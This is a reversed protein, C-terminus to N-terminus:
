STGRERSRLWHVIQDAVVANAVFFQTPSGGGAVQSFVGLSYNPLATGTWTPSNSAGAALKTAIAANAVHYTGGVLWLRGNMETAFRCSPM